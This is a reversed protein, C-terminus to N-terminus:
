MLAVLAERADLLNAVDGGIRLRGDLFERPSSTRGDAIAAATTPDTTLTVDPEPHPGAVVDVSGDTIVIHWRREPEGATGVVIQEIVLRLDPDVTLTAVRRRREEIWEPDGPETM